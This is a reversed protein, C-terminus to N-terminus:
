KKVAKAEARRKEKAKKAARLHKHWANRRSKNM